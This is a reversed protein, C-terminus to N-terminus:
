ECTLVSPRSVQWWGRPDQRRIWGAKEWEELTQGAKVGFRNMDPDFTSSTLRSEKDLGTFWESPFEDMDEESSLQQGVVSSFYPRFATGGFIGGRIMEEPTLNPMFHRNNNEFIINGNSNRRPLSARAYVEELYDEDTQRPPPLPNKIRKLASIPALDYKVDDDDDDDEERMSKRGNMSGSSLRASKRSGIRARVVPAAQTATRKPRDGYSLRPRASLRASSRGPSDDREESEQVKTERRQKKERAAANRGVNPQPSFPTILM